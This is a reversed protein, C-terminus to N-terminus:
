WIFIRYTGYVKMKFNTVDLADKSVELCANQHKFKALLLRLKVEM